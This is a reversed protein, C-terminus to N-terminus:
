RELDVEKLAVHPGQRVIRVKGPNYNHALDGKYVLRTSAKGHHVASFNHISIYLRASVTNSFIDFFLICSSIVSFGRAEMGDKM